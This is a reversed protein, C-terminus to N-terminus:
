IKVHKHKLSQTFFIREDRVSSIFSPPHHHHHHHFVVKGYFTSPVSLCVTELEEWSLPNMQMLFFVCLCVELLSFMREGRFVGTNKVSKFYKMRLTLTKPNQIASFSLLTKLPSGQHDLPQSNLSWHLPHPNSEQDLFIRKLLFHSGVGTYNGLSDWPCLLRSPWLGHPRLSDSM